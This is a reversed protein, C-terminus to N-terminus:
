QREYGELLSKAVSQRFELQSIKNGCAQYLIHANVLSLDLVHFFVRKWWKVSKHAFGYYLVMQDGTSPINCMGYIVHTLYESESMYKSRDVGGMYKNYEDVVRPKQINEIGGEATRSRRSRGVMSDDHYTSLMLVDRKDQWVLSLVSDDYSSRVEGKLLRYESVSKPIGRRNKRATGCAGFGHACLEKFLAPSSYFNDTFVIYGKQDLRQDSVLDMVVRHALGHETRDGEKGTYLKWGWCYGNTSDALVWAKLGWKHPKKPLYQVFSLRGKYSIMSEDVSIQQYPQYNTKFNELVIDLFPRVKYLKDYGTEGRLPQTDSNNLHLFKLLLEFRRSSMVRSFNENAFPWSTSWYSRIVLLIIM